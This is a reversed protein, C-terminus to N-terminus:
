DRRRREDEQLKGAYWPRRAFFYAFGTGAFLVMAVYRITTLTGSPRISLQLTDLRWLTDLLCHAAVTLLLLGLAKSALYRARQEFQERPASSSVTLQGRAPPRLTAPRPDERYPGQAPTAPELAGAVYVADGASLEAVRTRQKGREITRDIPRVLLVHQDPEVRVRDGAATRLTFPAAVTRRATESWLGHYGDQDIEVRIPPIGGDTEVVGHLVTDGAQATGATKARDAATALVLWHRRRLVLIGAIVVPLGLTIGDVALAASHPSM